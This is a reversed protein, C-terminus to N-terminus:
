TTEPLCRYKQSKIINKGEIDYAEIIGASYDLSISVFKDGKNFVGFDDTFEVDYYTNFLVDVTDWSVFTFPFLPEKIKNM